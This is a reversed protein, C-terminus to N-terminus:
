GLGNSFDLLADLKCGIRWPLLGALGRIVEYILPQIKVPEGATHMAGREESRARRWRM